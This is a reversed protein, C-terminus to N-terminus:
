ATARRARPSKVLKTNLPLVGGNQALAQEQSPFPGDKVEVIELVAAQRHHGERAGSRRRGPLQVLIRYDSDARGDQQVM